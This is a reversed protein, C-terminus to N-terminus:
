GSKVEGKEEGDEEEVSGAEEELVRILDGRESLEKEAWEKVRKRAGKVGGKRAFALLTRVTKEDIEIVGGRPRPGGEGGKGMKRVVAFAEEWAKETREAKEGGALPTRSVCEVFSCWNNVNAPFGKRTLWMWIERAQNGRGNHGCADLVISVTVNDFAFETRNGNAEAVDGGSAQVLTDWIRLVAIVDEARSFANMLANYVAIDPDLHLDVKILRHVHEVLALDTGRPDRAAAALLATYIYSNSSVRYSRMDAFLDLATEFAYNEDDTTDHKTLASILAAYFTTDLRPSPLPQDRLFRYTEMAHNLEGANIYAVILSTYVAVDPKYSVAGGPGGTKPTAFVEDFVSQAGAADGNKAMRDLVVKWVGAEMGVGYGYENVAGKVREMAESTRGAAVLATVLGALVRENPTVRAIRMDDYLAMAAQPNGLKSQTDMLIGYTVVDPDIGSNRMDGFVAHASAPIDHKLCADFLTNYTVIDPQVNPFLTPMNNYIRLAEKVGDINFALFKLLTNVTTIDVQQRLRARRPSLIDDHLLNGMSINDLHTAASLLTAYTFTDPDIGVVLMNTYIAYADQLRDHKLYLDIMTNFTVTDRPINHDLMDNYVHVAGKSDRARKFAAIITNYTHTVPAVDNERMLALLRLSETPNGHLGHAHMLCHYEFNLPKIGFKDHMDSFLRSLLELDASNKSKHLALMANRFSPQTLHCSAEPDALIHRYTSHLLPFNSKSSAEEFANLLDASSTTIPTPVTASTRIQAETPQSPPPNAPGTTFRVLPVVPRQQPLSPTREVAVALTAWTPSRRAVRSFATRAPLLM